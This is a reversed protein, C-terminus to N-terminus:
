ILFQLFPIILVLPPSIFSFLVLLFVIIFSRKSSMLTVLLDKMFFAEAAVPLATTSPVVKLGVSLARASALSVLAPPAPVHSDAV